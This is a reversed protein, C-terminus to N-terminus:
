RSNLERIRANRIELQGTGRSVELFGIRGRTPREALPKGRAPESDEPSKSLDMDIVKKGNLVVKLQHGVCEISYRNWELPRYAEASPAVARYLAGTKEWPKATLNTSFHRPDVMQIQLGETAPDGRLPMRLGVGGQGREGLRFEFELRFDGYERPSVLWTGRPVSGRLIGDTVVWHASPPAPHSVDNWSRVLWGLPAGQDPFLPTSDAAHARSGGAITWAAAIAAIAAVTSRWRPSNLSRFRPRDGARHRPDASRHSNM